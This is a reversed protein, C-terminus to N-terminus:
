PAEGGGVPLAGKGDRGLALGLQLTEQPRRQAAGDALDILEDDGELETEEVPELAFLLQELHLHQGLREFLFQGSKGVKAAM